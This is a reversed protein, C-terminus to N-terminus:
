SIERVKFGGIGFVVPHNEAWPTATTHVGQRDVGMMWLGHNDGTIHGSSIDGM